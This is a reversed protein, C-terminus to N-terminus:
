LVRKISIDNAKILLKVEQGKELELKKISEKLLVSELLNGEFEVTVSSLLEDEKIEVVVSTLENVFSTKRCGEKALAISLPKISLEVFSGIKVSNLELSMMYLKQTGVKFGVVHLIGNERIEVIEAIL